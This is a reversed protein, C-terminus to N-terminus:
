VPNGIPAVIDPFVSDPKQVPALTGPPNKNCKKKKSKKYAKKVQDTRPIDVSNIKEGDDTKTFLKQINGENLKRSSLLKKMDINNINPDSSNRLRTM